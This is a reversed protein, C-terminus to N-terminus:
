QDHLYSSVGDFIEPAEKQFEDIFVSAKASFIGINWLMRGTEMYDRSVDLSPKEHFKIVKHPAELTDEVYEIYGYGTAPYTPKVGLLTICDHNQSFTLAQKLYKTFRYNHDEPIFADVPVFIILAQPDYEYITMCTLLIAPGTNRSCPEKVVKGVRNGFRNNIITEYRNTTSIWIHEASVTPLLREIAQDLLTNHNDITLLQKPRHQKSLPWLREGSGGALIVAYVHSTDLVTATVYHQLVLLLWFLLRTQSRVM